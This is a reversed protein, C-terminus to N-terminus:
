TRELFELIRPSIRDISHHELIYDRGNKGIEARLEQSSALQVCSNVFNDDSDAVLLCATTTYDIGMAGKPTSVVPIGHSMAELIKIRVGSGSKIPAALIGATEMFQPLDDVFDHIHVAKQSKEKLASKAQKGAISLQITPLRKQIFPFLRLLCNVADINPGWDMAGLHFLNGNEVKLAEGSKMAVPVTCAETQINLVAFRKQDETTIPLLGDVASLTEIEYSRLNKALKRLLSRKLPNGTNVALDNWIDSEVNHTRVIIKGKFHARLAGLYPTVFLSELLVCDFHDQALTAIIKQELQKNYFRDVNYSGRKFWYPLAATLRVQTDVFVSEPQIKERIDEPYALLDFPHKDTSIAIHKISCESHLLCSLFQRM